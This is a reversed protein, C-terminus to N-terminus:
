HVITSSIDSGFGKQEKHLHLSNGWHTLSRNWPRRRGSAPVCRAFRRIMEMTSSGIHTLLEKGPQSILKSLGCESIFSGIVAAYHHWWNSKCPGTPSHCWARIGRWGFGKGKENGITTGQVCVGDGTCLSPQDSLPWGYTEAPSITLTLVNRIDVNVMLIKRLVTSLGVLGDWPKVNFANPCGALHLFFLHKRM